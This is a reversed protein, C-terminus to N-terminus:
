LGFSMSIDFGFDFIKELLLFGGSLVAGWIIAKVSWAIANEIEENEKISDFMNNGGIFM